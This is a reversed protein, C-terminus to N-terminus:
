GQVDLKAMDGVRGIEPDCYKGLYWTETWTYTIDLQLHVHM